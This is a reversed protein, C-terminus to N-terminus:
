VCIRLVQVISEIYVFVYYISLFYLSNYLWRKGGEIVKEVLWRKEWWDDKGSGIMKEMELWREVEDIRVWWKWGIVNWWKEGEEGIFVLGNEVMKRVGIRVVGEFCEWTRKWTELTWSSLFEIRNVDGNGFHTKM